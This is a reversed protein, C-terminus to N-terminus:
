HITSFYFDIEKDSLPALVPSVRRAGGRGTSDRLIGGVWEGGPTNEEYRFCHWSIAVWTGDAFVRTNLSGRKPQPLAKMEQLSHCQRLHCEWVAKFQSKNARTAFLLFTWAASAILVILLPLGGIRLKRNKLM